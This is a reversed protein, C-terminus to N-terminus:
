VRGAFEPYEEKLLTNSIIVWIDGTPYLVMVKDVLTADKKSTFIDFRVGPNKSIFNKKYRQWYGISSNQYFGPFFLKEGKRNITITHYKRQFM